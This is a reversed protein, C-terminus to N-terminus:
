NLSKSIIETEPKCTDNNASHIIYKRKKTECLM